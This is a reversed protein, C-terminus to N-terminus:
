SPLLIRLLSLLPKRLLSPPLSSLIPKLFRENLAAKRLQPLM